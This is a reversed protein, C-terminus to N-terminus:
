RIRIPEYTPREGDIVQALQRVQLEIARRYEVQGGQLPHFVRDALRAEYALTVTKLATRSLRVPLDPDSTREFDDLTLAADGILTMVVVDALVPRFEEMLDLALGPRDYGLAHFIGLYTDLGVLQIKLEVDRMLKSYVFSFLANAPDPAPHYARVKFGWEEPIMTRLAEFYYAAAKGEYGRLQDLTTAGECQKLMAMMGGVAGRLKPDHATRRQLLVRQNNIKGEVIARAVELGRPEDDVLKLQAHRRKAHKSELATWRGWTRGYQSTFVVDVKNSVLMLLAQTTIQVNGQLVLQELDNTPIAFTTQGRVMVRLQGGHKHVTAGQQDVYVIAM